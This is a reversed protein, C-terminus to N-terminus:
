PVEKTPMKRLRYLEFRYKILAKAGKVKEKQGPRDNLFVHDITDMVFNEVDEIDNM